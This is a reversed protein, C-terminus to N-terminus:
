EVIEWDSVLDEAVNHHNIFQCHVFDYGTLMYHIRGDLDTTVARVSMADGHRHKIRSGLPFKHEITTTTV